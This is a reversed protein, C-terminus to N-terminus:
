MDAVLMEIDFLILIKKVAGSTTNSGEQRLCNNKM